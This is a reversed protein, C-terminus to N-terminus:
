NDKEATQNQPVSRHADQPQNRSKLNSFDSPGKTPYRKKFRVIRPPRTTSGQPATGTSPAHMGSPCEHRENKYNQYAQLSSEMAKVEELLQTTSTHEASVQHSKLLNDVLDEPLGELFKRKLSYQDPPQVMRSAHRQLNNFFTLAGKSKSYKTKRYSIATNQVTM